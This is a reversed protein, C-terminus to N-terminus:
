RGLLWADGSMMPAMETVAWGHRRKCYLRPLRVQNAAGSRNSRFFASSASPAITDARDFTDREAIISLLLSAQVPM